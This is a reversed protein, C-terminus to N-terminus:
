GRRQGLNSEATVQLCSSVRLKWLLEGLRYLVYVMTYSLATHLLWILGAPEGARVWLQWGQTIADVTIAVLTWQCVGNVGLGRLRWWVLLCLGLLLGEAAAPVVICLEGCTM